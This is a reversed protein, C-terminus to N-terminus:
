CRLTRRKPAVPAGRRSKLISSEADPVQCSTEGMDVAVPGMQRATQTAADALSAVYTGCSIVFGNMAYRVRNPAGHITRACRDLLARLEGLALREDPVTTALGALTSWGAVAVQEKGSDIWSRALEFGEPHETAVWPVTTGSIMHWGAGVAWANLQDRTMKSGDAIMGALYMADSNGTAYLELALDQRGKLQKHLSKLDGVRVGYLPEPAGHRLFTRKTTPTAMAELAAMVDSLKM